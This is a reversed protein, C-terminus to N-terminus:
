ATQVGDVHPETYLFDSYNNCFHPLIFFYTEFRRLLFSLPIAFSIRSAVSSKVHM